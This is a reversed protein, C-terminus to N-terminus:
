TLSIKVLPITPWLKLIFIITAVAHPKWSFIFVNEEVLFSELKEVFIGNKMKKQSEYIRGRRIKAM